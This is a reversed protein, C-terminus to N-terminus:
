FRGSSEQTLSFVQMNKASGQVHNGIGARCGAEMQREKWGRDKREKVSEKRGRGIMGKKRGTDRQRQGEGGGNWYLPVNWGFCFRCLGQTPFAVEVLSLITSTELLVEAQQFVSPLLLWTPLVLNHNICSSTETYHSSPYFHLCKTKSNQGLVYVM